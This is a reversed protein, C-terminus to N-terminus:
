RLNSNHVINAHVTCHNYKLNTHWKHREHINKWSCLGYLIVLASPKAMFCLMVSYHFVTPWLCLTDLSVVALEEGFPTFPAQCDALYIYTSEWLLKPRLYLKGVLPQLMCHLWFNPHGYGHLHDQTVKIAGNICPIALTFLTSGGIAGHFCVIISVGWFCSIIVVLLCYEHFCFCLGTDVHYLSWVAHWIGLAM